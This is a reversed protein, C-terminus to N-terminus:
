KNPFEIEIIRNSLKEIDNVNNKYTKYENIGISNALEKLKTIGMQKLEKTRKILKISEESSESDFLEPILSTENTIINPESVRSIHKKNDYKNETKKDKEKINSFIYLKEKLENIEKNKSKIKNNLDEIQKSKNLDNEFNEKL